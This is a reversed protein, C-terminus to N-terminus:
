PHAIRKSLENKWQIPGLFSEIWFEILFLIGFIWEISGLINLLIIWELSKSPFQEFNWNFWWVKLGGKTFYMPQGKQTPITPINQINMKESFQRFFENSFNNNKLDQINM